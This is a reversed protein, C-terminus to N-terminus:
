YNRRRRPWNRSQPSDGYFNITLKGNADKFKFVHIIHDSQRQKFTVIDKEEVIFNHWMLQGGTKNSFMPIKRDEFMKQIKPLIHKNVFKQRSNGGVQKAEFRKDKLNEGFYAAYAVGKVIEELTYKKGLFIHLMEFLDMVNAYGSIIPRLNERNIRNIVNYLLRSPTKNENYFYYDVLPSKKMKLALRVKPLANYITSPGPVPM